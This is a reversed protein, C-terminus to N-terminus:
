GAGGVLATPSNQYCLEALAIRTYTDPSVVRARFAVMQENGEVVIRYAFLVVSRNDDLSNFIASYLNNIERPSSEIKAQLITPPIVDQLHDMLARIAIKGWLSIAKPRLRLPWTEIDQGAVAGLRLKTRSPFIGFTGSEPPLRESEKRCWGNYGLDDIMLCSRYDEGIDVSVMTELARELAHPDFLLEEILAPSYEDGCAAYADPFVVKAQSLILRLTEFLVSRYVGCISISSEGAWNALCTASGDGSKLWSDLRWRAHARMKAAWEPALHPSPELGSDSKRRRPKMEEGAEDEGHKRTEDDEISRKEGKRKEVGNLRAEM